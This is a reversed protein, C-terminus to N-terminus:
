NNSIICKFLEFYYKGCYKITNHYEFCKIFNINSKQCQTNKKTKSVLNSKTMIYYITYIITDIKYFQYNLHVIQYNLEILNHVLCKPRKFINKIM